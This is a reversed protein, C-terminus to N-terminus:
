KRGNELAKWVTAESIDLVDATNKVARTKIEVIGMERRYIQRILAAAIDSKLDMFNEARVTVQRGAITITARIM